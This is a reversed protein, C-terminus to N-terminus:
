WQIPVFKVILNRRFAASKLTKLTSKSPRCTTQYRGSNAQLDAKLVKTLYAKTPTTATDSQSKALLVAGQPIRTNCTVCTDLVRHQPTDTLM